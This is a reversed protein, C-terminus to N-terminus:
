GGFYNEITNQIISVTKEDLEIIEEEKNDQIPVFKESGTFNYTLRFNEAQKGTIIRTLVSAILYDGVPSAHEGDFYYLDEEIM